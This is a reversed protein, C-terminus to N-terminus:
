LKYENQHHLIRIQSLQVQSVPQIQPLQLSSVQPLCSAQSISQIQPSMGLNKMMNNINAMAVDDQSNSKSNPTVIAYRNHAGILVDLRGYHVSINERCCAEFSGPEELISCVKSARTAGTYTLRKNSFKKNPKGKVYYYVNKWQSGQSKHVTICYALLMHKISYVGPRILYMPVKIEHGNAKVIIDTNGLFGQIIGDCGNGVNHYVRNKTFVVPDGLSYKMEIAVKNGRSDKRNTLCSIMRYDRARGNICESLARNLDTNDDNTATIFKHDKINDLTINNRRVIEAILNPIRNDYVIFNHAPQVTYMPSRVINTSNVIIPDDIDGIVRLNKTLTHIHVAGSNVIDEFPRGYKLPPLQNIDGLMILVITHGQLVDILQSFLSLSVMTAEDIILYDPVGLESGGISQIVSHITRTYCIENNYALMGLIERVRKVAKATFSCVIFKKDNNKIQRVIEKIATSKGTGALGSIISVGHSLSGEIAAKQEDTFAIDESYKIKLSSTTLTINNLIYKSLKQEEHYIHYLYTMINSPEGDFELGYNITLEKQLEANLDPHQKKLMWEPTATWKNNRTNEYVFRSVGGLYKETGYNTVLRGSNIIVTDCADLSVTYYAYPNTIFKYYESKWDFTYLNSINEQKVPFSTRGMVRDFQCKYIKNKEKDPIGLLSLQHHVVTFLFPKKKCYKRTTATNTEKEEPTKKRTLEHIITEMDKGNSLMHIVCEQISNYGFASATFKDDVIGYRWALCIKLRDNDSVISTLFNTAYNILSANLNPGKLEFLLNNISNVSVNINKMGTKITAESFNIHDGYNIGTNTNNINLSVPTVPTSVPRSKCANIAPGLQPYKQMLDDNSVCWELYRSDTSYVQSVSKGKHKGFTITYATPDM